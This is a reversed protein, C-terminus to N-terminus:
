GTARMQLCSKFLLYCRSVAELDHLNELAEWLEKKSGQILSGLRSAPPIFSFEYSGIAKCPNYFPNKAFISPGYLNMGWASPTQQSSSKIFEASLAKGVTVLDLYETDTTVHKTGDIYKVLEGTLLGQGAVEGAFEDSAAAALMAIGISGKAGMIEPKIIATLDNVLGGTNCADIVLNVHKVGSSSLM